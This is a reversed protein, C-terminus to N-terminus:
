KNSLKKQNTKDYFKQALLKFCFLRYDNSTGNPGGDRKRVTVRMNQTVLLEQLYTLRSIDEYLIVYEKWDM